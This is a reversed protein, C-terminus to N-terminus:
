SEWYRMCGGKRRTEKEGGAGGHEVDAGELPRSTRKPSDGEEELETDRM